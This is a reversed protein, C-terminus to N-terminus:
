PDYLGAEGNRRLQGMFAQLQPGQADFFGEREDDRMGGLGHAEFMQHNGFVLQNGDTLDYIAIGSPLSDIIHRMRRSAAEEAHLQDSLEQARVVDDIDRVCSLLILHGEDNQLRILTASSWRYFGNAHLFRVQLSDSMVEPDAFRRAAGEPSFYDLYLAADDPHLIKEVVANCGEMLPFSTSASLDITGGTRYLETAVMATYDLEYIEAYVSSLATFVQHRRRLSEGLAADRVQAAADVMQRGKVSKPTMRFGKPLCNYAIHEM